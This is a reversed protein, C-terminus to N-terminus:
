LVVDAVSRFDTIYLPMPLTTDLIEGHAIACRIRYYKDIINIVSADKTIARVKTMFYNNQQHTANAKQWKSDIASELQAFLLVFYAQENISKRKEFQKIDKIRKGKKASTIRIDIFADTFAYCQEIQAFRKM